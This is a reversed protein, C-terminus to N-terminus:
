LVDVTQVLYRVPVVDYFSAGHGMTFNLTQESLAMCLILVNMAIGHSVIPDILRSLGSFRRWFSSPLQEDLNVDNSVDNM